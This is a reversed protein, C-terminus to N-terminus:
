GGAAREGCVCVGGSGHRAREGEEADLRDQDEGGVIARADEGLVVRIGMRGLVVGAVVGALDCVLRDLVLLGELLPQQTPVRSSSCTIADSKAWLLCRLLGGVNDEVVLLDDDELHLRVDHEVDNSAGFLVLNQQVPAAPFRCDHLSISVAM